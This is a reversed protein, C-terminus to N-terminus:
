LNLEKQINKKKTQIGRKSLEYDSNNTCIHKRRLTKIAEIDNSVNEIMSILDQNNIINDAIYGQLRDCKKLIALYKNGVRRHGEVRKRFTLSPKFGV